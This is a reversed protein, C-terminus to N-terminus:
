SVSNKSIVVFSILAVLAWLINTSATFLEYPDGNMM